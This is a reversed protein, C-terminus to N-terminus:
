TKTKTVWVFIAKSKINLGKIYMHGLFLFCSETDIASGNYYESECQDSYYHLSKQQQSQTM